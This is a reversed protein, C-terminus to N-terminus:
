RTVNPIEYNRSPAHRIQERTFGRVKGGMPAPSPPASGGCRGAPWGVRRAVTDVSPRDAKRAPVVAGPPRAPVSEAESPRGGARAAEPSEAGAGAM